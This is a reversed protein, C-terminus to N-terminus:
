PVENEGDVRMEQVWFRFALGSAEYMKNLSARDLPAEAMIEAYFLDVGGPLNIGAIGFQFLRRIQERFRFWTDMNTETFDRNGAGIFVAEAVYKVLVQDESGFPEISEPQESPAVVILPTSNLTEEKKPLKCVQVPVAKGNFTLDLAAIQAAMTDLITAYVSQDAAM